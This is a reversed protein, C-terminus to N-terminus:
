QASAIILDAIDADDFLYDENFQFFEDVLSNLRDNEAIIATKIEDYDYHNSSSQISDDFDYDSSPEYSYGLASISASVNAVFECDVEEHAPSVARVDECHLVTNDEKCNDDQVSRTTTRSRMASTPVQPRYYTDLETSTHSGRVSALETRATVESPYTDHDYMFLSTRAPVTENNLPM